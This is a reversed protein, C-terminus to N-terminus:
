TAALLMFTEGVAVEVESSAGMRWLVDTDTRAGGDEKLAGSCAVWDRVRGEKGGDASAGAVDLIFRKRM